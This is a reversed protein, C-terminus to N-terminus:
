YLTGSKLRVLPLGEANAHGLDRHQICSLDAKCYRGLLAEPPAYELTHEENSPGTPGFLERASVPDVASGLDILRLHFRAGLGPDHGSSGPLQQM